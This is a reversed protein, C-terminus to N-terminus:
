LARLRQLVAEFVKECPELEESTYAQEMLQKLNGVADLLNRQLFVILFSNHCCYVSTICALGTQKPKRVQVPKFLITETSSNRLYLRITQLVGPLTNRLQNDVSGLVKTVEVPATFAYQRFDLETAKQSQQVHAVQKM